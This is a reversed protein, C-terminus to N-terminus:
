TKQKCGAPDEKKKLAVNEKTRMGGPPMISNRSKLNKM